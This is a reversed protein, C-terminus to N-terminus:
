QPIPISSVINHGNMFWIVNRGSTTHRWLIDSKGNGNFDGIGAVSYGTDAMSYFAYSGLLNTGNMLWMVNSNNITHRWLIDSKGDGNFDGVGKIEWNTDIVSVIGTKSNQLTFGNMLWIGNFGNNIHRWLIDSKGDGNFDAIGLIKYNNIVTFLQGGSILSGANMLWIVNRGDTVHRWLIDSKGDGDFDGVGGVKFNTDVVSIISLSNIISTGDLLWMVNQGTNSNRWLLDDKADGNFDLPSAASTGQYRAVFMEFSGASVLSDTGFTATGNFYGTVLASGDEMAAIAQGYDAM